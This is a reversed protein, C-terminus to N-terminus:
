AAEDRVLMFVKVGGDSFHLSFLNGLITQGSDKLHFSTMEVQLVIHVLLVIYRGM